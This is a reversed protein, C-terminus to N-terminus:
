WIEKGSDRAPSSIPEDDGPQVAREACAEKFADFARAGYVTAPGGNMLFTVGIAEAAEAPTAHRLNRTLMPLDDRVERGYNMMSAKQGSGIGSAVALWRLTRQWCLRLVQENPSRPATQAPREARTPATARATAKM